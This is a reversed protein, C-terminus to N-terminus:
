NKALKLYIFYNHLNNLLHKQQLKQRQKAESSKIKSPVQFQNGAMLIRLLCFFPIRKILPDEEKRKKTGASSFQSMM